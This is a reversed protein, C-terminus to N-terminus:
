LEGNGYGQRLCGRERGVRVTGVDCSIGVRAMGMEWALRLSLWAVGIGGGSIHHSADERFTLFLFSFIGDKIYNFTM